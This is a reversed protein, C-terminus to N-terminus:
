ETETSTAFLWWVNVIELWWCEKLGTHRSGACSMFSKEM